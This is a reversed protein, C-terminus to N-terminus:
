KKAYEAGHPWATTHTNAYIRDIVNLNSNFGITNPHAPNTVPPPINSFVIPQPTYIPVHTTPPTYGTNTTSSTLNSWSNNM